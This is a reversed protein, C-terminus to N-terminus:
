RAAGVLKAAILSVCVCVCVGDVIVPGDGASTIHIPQSETGRLNGVLCRAAGVEYRGARLRCEDGPRLQQVCDCLATPGDIPSAYHVTSSASAVIASLCLAALMM